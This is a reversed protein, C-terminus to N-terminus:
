IGLVNFDSVQDDVTQAEAANGGVELSLGSLAGNVEVLEDTVVPDNEERVWLIVSGNARSLETSEGLKLRLELLTSGLQNTEGGVCDLAVSAPDLIDILNAAAM